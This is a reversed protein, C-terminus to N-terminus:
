YSSAIVLLIQKPHHADCKIPHQIFMVVQKKYLKDGKKLIPGNGREEYPYPYLFFDIQCIIKYKM